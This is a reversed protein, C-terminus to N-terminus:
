KKIQWYAINWVNSEWASPNTNILDTRHGNASYRDILPIVANNKILLDNLQIEIMARKEPNLETNLTLFLKDYDPNQYRGYNNGKWGNTKQAAENSVMGSLFNQMDPFDSSRTLMLLDREARSASDGNDPQGFYVGADANKIQMDIGAAKFSQQMIQEEKERVANVSTGFLISLKVGGKARVGDSGKKYGADELLQNAKAPDYPCMNNKSQVQPPIGEIYNCTAKGAAGYLAKQITDRDILLSIAQRVAPDTLFPHPAKLSSKEGDVEKTPDTFNVIIHEVGFGAVTDLTKGSDTLQKLIDPTVQVNWGFDVQGTQVAKAATAADGGGKLDVADFFPANPDRYMANITYQVNDGSMFSKVIYPGTGIPANNIVCNKPDPICKDVQAKQLVVGNVNTFPLYWLATADKFTVKATTPDSADVDAVNAYNKSTVAGSEPKVIYQWTAKVDASTFPTGDSFKVGDKLKWTVSKGDAALQGNQTTPIEKALVPVNPQFSDQSTLALPEEVLRSADSDKTGQALPENLITPAQWWLLHLTGGGGRKTPAVGRPDTGTAATMAGAATAAPATTAAAASAAPATTGSATTAVAVAPATTSGATTAVAAAPATTAAGASAAPATTSAPKTAATTAAVTATSADTTGCAALVLPLMLAFAAFATCRAWRKGIYSWAIMM